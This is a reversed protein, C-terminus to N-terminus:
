KGARRHALAVLATGVAVVAVVVLLNSSYNHPLSSPNHNVRAYDRVEPWSFLAVCGGIVLAAQVPARFRGPVVHAVGVGLALVLPAFLLDHVLPGAVFFRALDTPRTDIHHILVGRVGWGIVATGLL